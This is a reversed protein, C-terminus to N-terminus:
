PRRNGGGPPGGQGFMGQGFQMMEQMLQNRQDPPMNMFAQMGARMQMGMFKSRMTPDMNMFMDLGKQVAQQLQTDDMQMMLEMSEKQMETVRDALSKGGLASPITSYIVYVGDTDFQQAELEQSFNAPVEYNKIITSARRMAPTEVVIGAQEVADMARLSEGLKEPVVTSAQASKLYVKKWATKRAQLVLQDLALGVNNAQDPAKPKALVWIAPDVVIRVEYLKALSDAILKFAAIQNQPIPRKQSMVGRQPQQRQLGGQAALPLSATMGALVLLIRHTRTKM